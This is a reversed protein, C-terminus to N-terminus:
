FQEPLDRPGGPATNLTSPAGPGSPAPTAQALTASDAAFQRRVAAAAAPFREAFVEADAPQGAAQRAHAEAAILGLPVDAASGLEPFDRLYDEVLPRRGGRWQRELDIKALETLAPRRLPDGATLARGEAALRDPSWNLDFEVLMAELRARDAATLDTLTANPATM